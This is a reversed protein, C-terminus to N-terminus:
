LMGGRKRIFWELGFLVIIAILTYQWNWLEFSSARTVDRLTFSPRGALEAALGGLESPSLYRGGTRFALQRLLSANMRTDQFELDLGGVSFRGRDEGLQLGDTKAQARFTYDGEPLGEFVGEYRGGGISRLSLESKADQKEVTIGLQANDVPQASADYVQGVFEVSEGYTFADKTPTVKVPRDEDRTTLWRVSNALFASLLRKSGSSGQSMLRWRWIGYGLFAISRYRNVNRTLFFPESTVINQIKCFGLVTAEPKAKYITATRFIPPLRTWDADADGVKLLPNGKQADSPQLFVYQEQSSVSETIFPLESRLARLKTEDVNKGAFFLIPIKWQIIANRLIDLTAANTLANPFGILVLCDASDVIAPSLSGEYFGGQMRQTYSHASIQKEEVLTQKIISLDPSPGGAIILARLKSKLIRVLFAKQNNRSTLEGPLSSIRVALRKTGEGEPTYSLQVAYERTGDGLTVVKRDLERTGDSLTVEVKEGSYGSSKLRLDVTTPSENYVRDNALLKTILIDKQETSDGVGLTYLPIAIEQAEHLPNQGLNYGGDTIILAAQINNREREAGLSHLASSIDTADETFTPSDKSFSTHDNLKTGFTYYHLAVRGSLGRFDGGSLISKLQEARDGVRDVIGMSKSNDVLVALVPPQTSSFLLKLIPEFLLMLLLSLAATRLTILVIRIAGPVPPLTYRYFLLTIGAALLSLLVIIAASVTFGLEISPM